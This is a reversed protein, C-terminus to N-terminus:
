PRTQSRSGRLDQFTKLALVAVPLITQFKEWASSGAKDNRGPKPEDRPPKLEPPAQMSRTALLGVLLGFGVGVAIATWAVEHVLDDTQGAASKSRKAIAAQLDSATFEGREIANAIREVLIQLEDSVPERVDADSM